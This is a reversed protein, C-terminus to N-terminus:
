KGHLVRLVASSKWLEEGIDVKADVHRRADADDAGVASALGSEEVKDHAHQLGGVPYTTNAECTEMMVLIVIVIRDNGRVKNGAPKQHSKTAHTRLGNVAVALHAHAAVRLVKHFVQGHERVWHVVEDVAKGVLVDRVLDTLLASTSTHM